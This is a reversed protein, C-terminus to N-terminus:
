AHNLLHSHQYINGLVTCETGIGWHPSVEDLQMEYGLKGECFIVLGTGEQFSGFENQINEHIIDGEFVSVGHKDTRTTDNMVDFIDLQGAVTEGNDFRKGRLINLEYDIMLVEVMYGDPHWARSKM